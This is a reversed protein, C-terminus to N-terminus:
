LRRWMWQSMRESLVCGAAMSMQKRSTRDKRETNWKLLASWGKSSAIITGLLSKTWTINYQKCFALHKANLGHSERACVRWINRWSGTSDSINETWTECSIHLQEAAPSESIGLPFINLLSSFFSYLHEVLLGSCLSVEFEDIDCRGASLYLIWAKMFTNQNNM